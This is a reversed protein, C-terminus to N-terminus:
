GIIKVCEVYIKWESINFFFIYLCFDKVNGRFNDNFLYNFNVRNEILISVFM